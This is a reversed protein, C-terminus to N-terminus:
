FPIIRGDRWALASARDIGLASTICETLRCERLSRSSNKRSRWASADLNDALASMDATPTMPGVIWRKGNGTVGCDEALIPVSSVPLTVM